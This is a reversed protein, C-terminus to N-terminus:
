RSRSLAVRIRAEGDDGLHLIYHSRESSQEKGSADYAPWRVDVSALKDTMVDIREIEGKTSVLGRARYWDAAQAFLKEIQDSNELAIAKDDFLLLAPVQWCDAVAKLDAGSIAQGLCELLKRIKGKDM